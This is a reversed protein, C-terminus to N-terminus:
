GPRRNKKDVHVRGVKSCESTLIPRYWPVKGIYMNKEM